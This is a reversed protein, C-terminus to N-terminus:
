FIFTKTEKDSSQIFIQICISISLAASTYFGIFNCLEFKTWNIKITKAQEVPQQSRKITFQLSMRKSKFKNKIAMWAVVFLGFLDSGCHYM